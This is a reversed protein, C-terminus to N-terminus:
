EERDGKLAEDIMAEWTPVAPNEDLGEGPELSYCGYVVPEGAEIMAKTPVRMAEIASRAKDISRGRRIEDLISGSKWSDPDIARAVREVMESIM